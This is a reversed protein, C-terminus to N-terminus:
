EHYCKESRGTYRCLVSIEAPQLPVAAQDPHAITTLTVDIWVLTASYNNELAGLDFHGSVCHAVVTFTEM